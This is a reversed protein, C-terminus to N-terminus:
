FGLHHTCSTRLWGSGSSAAMRDGATSIVTFSQPLNYLRICDGMLNDGYHPPETVVKFATDYEAIGDSLWERYSWSYVLSADELGDEKRVTITPTMRFVVALLRWPIWHVRELWSSSRSKVSLRAAREVFVFCKCPFVSWSVLRARCAPRMIFVVLVACRRADCNTILGMFDNIVKHVQSAQNALVITGLFSM